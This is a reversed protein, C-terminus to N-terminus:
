RGLVELLRRFLDADLSPLMGIQRNQVFIWGEAVDKALPRSKGENLVKGNETLEDIRIAPGGESAYIFTETGLDSKMDVRGEAGIIWRGRPILRITKYNLRNIVLVKAQYPDVPEEKITINEEAIQAKPDFDEIWKKAQKYLRAVRSLYEDRMQKRDTKNTMM